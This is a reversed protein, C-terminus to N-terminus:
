RRNIIKTEGILEIGYKWFLGKYKEQFAAYAEECSLKRPSEVSGYASNDSSIDVYHFNYVYVTEPEPKPEPKSEPEAVFKRSILRNHEQLYLATTVHAPVQDDEVIKWALIEASSKELTDGNHREIIVLPIGSAQKVTRYNNKNELVYEYLKAPGKTFRVKVLTKM